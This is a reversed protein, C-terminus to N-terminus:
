KGDWDKWWRCFNKPPDKKIMKLLQCYCIYTREVWNRYIAMGPEDLITIPVNMIVGNDKM